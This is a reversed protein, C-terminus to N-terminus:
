IVRTKDKNLHKFAFHILLNNMDRKLNRKWLCRYVNNERDFVENRVKDNICCICSFCQDNQSNLKKKFDSLRAYKGRLFTIFFCNM